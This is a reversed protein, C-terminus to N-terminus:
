EFEKILRVEEDENNKCINVNNTLKIIKTINRQPIKDNQAILKIGLAVFLAFSFIIIIFKLFFSM